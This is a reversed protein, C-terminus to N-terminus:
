SWLLLLDNEMINGFGVSALFRECPRLEAAFNELWKADGWVHGYLNRFRCLSLIVM